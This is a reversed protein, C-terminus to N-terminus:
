PKGQIVPFNHLYVPSFYTPHPYSSSGISSDPLLVAPLLKKPSLFPSVPFSGSVQSFRPPSQRITTFFSPNESSSHICIGASKGAPSLIRCFVPPNRIQGPLFCSQPKIVPCGSVNVTAILCEMRPLHVQIGRVIFSHCFCCFQETHDALIRFNMSSTVLYQQICMSMPYIDTSFQQKIIM